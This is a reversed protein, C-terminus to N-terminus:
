RRRARDVIPAIQWGIAAAALLGPVNGVPLLTVSREALSPTAHVTVIGGGLFNPNGGCLPAIRLGAASV